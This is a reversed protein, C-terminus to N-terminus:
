MPRKVTPSLSPSTYLLCISPPKRNQTVADDATESPLRVYWRQWSKYRRRKRDLEAHMPRAVDHRDRMKQAAERRRRGGRWAVNGIPPAEKCADAAGITVTRRQPNSLEFRLRSQVASRDVSIRIEEQVVHSLAIGLEGLAGCRCGFESRWRQPAHAFGRRIHVVAPRAREGFRYRHM